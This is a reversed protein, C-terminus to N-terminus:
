SNASTVSSGSAPRPVDVSMHKTVFSTKGPTGGTERVIVERAYDAETQSSHRKARTLCRHSLMPLLLVSGGRGGAHSMKTASRTGVYANISSDTRYRSRM